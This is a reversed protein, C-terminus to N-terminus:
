IIEPGSSKELGPKRTHFKWGLAAACLAALGGIALSWRAGATEGVWGVIPGGFTSSGLFAIAWFSMVRGRMQPSSELQLVSNALSTFSISFIGVVVLAALSLALTPMLAAALIALGFFLANSVLQAPSIRRNGAIMLGGIVAGIGLAMSLLAYVGADGNLAFRAILPLSVQFEFTLSGIIIIMVLTSRLV